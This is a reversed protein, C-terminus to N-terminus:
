GDVIQFIFQLLLLIPITAIIRPIIDRTGKNIDNIGKGSGMGSGPMLTSNAIPEDAATTPSISPMKARSFDFGLLLIATAPTAMHENPMMIEITPQNM